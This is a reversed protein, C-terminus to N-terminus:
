SRERGDITGLWTAIAAGRSVVGLKAYIRNIHNKVTKESLFLEGAIEGNSRGQAVLDIVDVERASLGHDTGGRRPVPVPPPPVPDSRVMGVLASVAPPSLPNAGNLASHVADALEKATFTGHVLYGSAGNNLAARIVEPEQTYTLMIVRSVRSIRIAASVGDLLPMQVDLLVLDPRLRETLEMATEGDGAEGVVALGSAELLSVLGSRVVLNDDVVLVRPTDM